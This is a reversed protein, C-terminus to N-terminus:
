TGLHLGDEMLSGTAAVKGQPLMLLKVSTCSTSTTLSSSLRSIDTRNCGCRGIWRRRSSSSWEALNLFFSSFFAVHRLYMAKESRKQIRRGFSYTIPALIHSTCQKFYLQIHPTTINCQHYSQHRTAQILIGLNAHRPIVALWTEDLLCPLQANTMPALTQQVAAPEKRM